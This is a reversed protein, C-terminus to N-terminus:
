TSGGCNAAPHSRASSGAKARASDARSGSMYITGNASSRAPFREAHTSAHPFPLWHRSWRLNGQADYKHLTAAVTMSRRDTSVVYVSGDPASAADVAARGVRTTRRVTIANSAPALGAVLGVAVLLTLITRRM